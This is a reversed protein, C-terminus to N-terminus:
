ANSKGKARGSRPTTPVVNWRRLPPSLAERLRAPVLDDTIGGVALEADHPLFVAQDLLPQVRRGATGVVGTPWRKAGTVVLQAPPVAAGCTVWPELRALVQEAHVLSPRTARCVLLPRPCPTGNRLWNGAGALPHAALRWPDHSLDVVTVQPTNDQPPQWFAPPPVMGPAVIPLPTEVRALLADHRWSARICVTPDPSAFVPGESGAALALGSRAPDATDVMLVRWGCRQASDAVTAAVTSAGAGPSAALVPIVGGFSHWSVPQTATSPLGQRQVTASARGIDSATREAAALGHEATSLMGAEVAAAVDAGPLQGWAGRALDALEASMPRSSTLVHDDSYTTMSM